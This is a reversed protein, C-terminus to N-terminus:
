RLHEEMLSDKLEKDFGFVHNTATLYIMRTLGLGYVQQEM